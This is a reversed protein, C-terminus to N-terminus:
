GAARVAAAWKGASQAHHAHCIAIALADAADPGDIQVGPLQMRVMHDVQQKAAILGRAPNGKRNLPIGRGVRMIVHGFPGHETLLDQAALSSFIEFHEKPLFSAIIMGDVYTEHNAAIIYPVDKPINELGVGQLDIM